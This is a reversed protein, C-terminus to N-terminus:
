QWHEALAPMPLTRRHWGRTDGREIAENPKPQGTLALVRAGTPIKPTMVWNLPFPPRIDYKYSRVWEPPWWTAREAGIAHTMFAQETSFRSKDQAAAPDRLFLEAAEPHAGAHFRYASSNFIDPRPRLITKRWSIWNHIVCFEGPYTFFDNLDGVILNDLDLFLCQGQLKADPHLVALKWWIGCLPPEFTLSQIDRAEIAPEMGEPEDTFCVFNFPPALHRRVGRYLRNVWEASYPGSGWKLCVVTKQTM